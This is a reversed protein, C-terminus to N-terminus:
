RGTVAGTRDAARGPKMRRPAGVKQMALIISHNLTRAERRKKKRSQDASQRRDSRRLRLLPSRIQEDDDGIIEAIRVKTRESALDAGGIEVPQRQVADPERAKM